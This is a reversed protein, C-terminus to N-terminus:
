PVTVSFTLNTPAFTPVSPNVSNSPASEVGSQSTATAQYCYNGPVVTSDTYTKTTLATALKNFTPTGSCLGAVRYISYTTGAPNTTDTWSLVVSHTSQANALVVFTVFVLVVVAKKLIQM